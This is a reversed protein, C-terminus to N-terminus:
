SRDAASLVALVVTSSATNGNVGIRESGPPIDMAVIERIRTAHDDATTRSRWLRLRAGPDAVGGGFAVSRNWRSPRLLGSPSFCFDAFM